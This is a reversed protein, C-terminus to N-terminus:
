GSMRAQAPHGPEDADDDEMGYTQEYTPLVELWEDFFEGARTHDPNDKMWEWGRELWARAAPQKEDPYETMGM